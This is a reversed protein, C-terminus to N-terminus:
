ELVAVLIVGFILGIFGMLRIHQDSMEIVERLIRRMQSPFLAYIAGEIACFIAVALFFKEIM